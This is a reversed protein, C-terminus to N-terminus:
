NWQGDINSKLNKETPTQRPLKFYPMFWPQPLTLALAMEIEVGELPETNLFAYIDAMHLVTWVMADVSITKDHKRFCTEDGLMYIKLELALRNRTAEM